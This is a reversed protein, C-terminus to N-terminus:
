GLPQLIFSFVVGSESISSLLYMIIVSCASFDNSCNIYCWIWLLSECFLLIVTLCHHNHHKQYTWWVWGWVLWGYPILGPMPWVSGLGFIRSLLGLGIRETRIHARDIISPHWCKFSRPRNSLWMVQTLFKKLSSIIFAFNLTQFLRRRLSLSGELWHNM